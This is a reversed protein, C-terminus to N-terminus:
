NRIKYDEPIQFNRADPEGRRIDFLRYVWEENDSRDFELVVHRLDPSYWYQIDFGDEETRHGRCEIGEILKAGLSQTSPGSDEAFDVEPESLGSSDSRKMTKSQLDLTWTAPLVPDSLFVISGFTGARSELTIEERMRGASDRVIRGSRRFQELGNRSLRFEYRAQFPHSKVTSRYPLVPNADLTTQRTNAAAWPLIMMASAVVISRYYGPM